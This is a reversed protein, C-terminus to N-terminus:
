SSKAFVATVASTMEVRDALEVLRHHDRGAAVVPDADVVGHDGLAAEDALHRLHEAVRRQDGQEGVLLAGDRRLVVAGARDADDLVALARLVEEEEVADALVLDHVLAVEDDRGALLGALLERGEVRAPMGIPWTVFTPWVSTSGKWSTWTIGNTSKM